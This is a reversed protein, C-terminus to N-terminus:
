KTRKRSTAGSSSADPILPLPLNLRKRWARSESRTTSNDREAERESHYYTLTILHDVAAHLELLNGRWRHSILKDQIEPALARFRLSSRSEILWRDLLVPIEDKRERLPAITFRAASDMTSAPFSGNIKGLSRTCIVLRVKAQSAMVSSIFNQDFRGRAPLWLLLTGDRADRIKQLDAGGLERTPAIEVFRNHRRTSAWHITGALRELQSGPEGILVVHRDADVAAAILCDDIEPERTEGLVETVTKRALRMEENLAYYITDGLRFQDGPQIYCETVERHDIILPNKRDTSINEVRVWNGSVRELRLHVKALYSHDVRLDGARGLTAVRLGALLPLEIPSGYIRLATIIDTGALYSKRKESTYIETRLPAVPCM